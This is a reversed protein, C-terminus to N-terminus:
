VSGGSPVSASSPTMGAGVMLFLAREAFSMSRGAYQLQGRTLDNPVLYKVKDIPARADNRASSTREAAVAYRALM